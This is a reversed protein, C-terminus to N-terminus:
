NGVTEIILGQAGYRIDPDRVTISPINYSKSILESDLGSGKLSELREVLIPPM